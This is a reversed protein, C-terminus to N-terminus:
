RHERSHVGLIAEDENVPLLAVQAVEQARVQEVFRSVVARGDLLGAGADPAVWRCRVPCPAPVPRRLPWGTKEADITGGFM